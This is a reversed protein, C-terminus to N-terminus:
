PLVPDKVWQILGPILGAVEHNRTPNTEVAGCPSSWLYKRLQSRLSIEGQLHSISARKVNGFQNQMYNSFAPQIFCRKLIRIMLFFLRELFFEYKEGQAKSINM